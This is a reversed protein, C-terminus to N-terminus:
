RDTRPVGYAALISDIDARRRDLAADLEDRLAREQKRVGVAMAFEFPVGPLDSPPRAPRVTLPVASQAAYYGAQPGWVVGVGLEGRELARVLREAAPGDGYITYGVVNDVVGHRALAYGPPSAALDNGILQVGVKESKLLPDDFGDITSGARTVFAYSSRYYPTTPLVREFDVPVGILVDCVRADLTKRVLGRRLPTWVYVLERQTEDALVQAIRNEFGRQQADSYPLNDPDSCVRLQPSAAFAATLLLCALVALLSAVHRDRCRSSM